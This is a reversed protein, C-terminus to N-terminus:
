LSIALSHEIVGVVVGRSTVTADHSSASWCDSFGSRGTTVYSASSTWRQSDSAASTSGSGEGEKAPVMTILKHSSSTNAYCARRAYPNEYLQVTKTPNVQSNHTLFLPSNCCRGVSPRPHLGLCYHTRASNQFGLHIQVDPRHQWRLPVSIHPAKGGWAPRKSKSCIGIM